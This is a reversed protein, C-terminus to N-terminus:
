GVSVETSRVSSPDVPEDLSVTVSSGSITKTASTGGDDTSVTVHATRGSCHEDFGSIRVATVKGEDNQKM